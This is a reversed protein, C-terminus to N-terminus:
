EARNTDRLVRMALLALAGVAAVLVAWLVIRRYPPAPALAAPGGLNRPADLTAPRVQNTRESEDLSALLAEVPADATRTRASGYVLTYPASGQAVFVLEHPHWGVKLRPARERKWEGGRTPEVRWYRDSTQAIRAAAGQVVGNSEQLRYFLGSQRPVWAAASARSQITVSAAATADAFELDLYRVPFMARTDYLAAGTQDLSEVTLTRWRIQGERESARPRVRVTTLAVRALEKPWSIRLYKAVEGPAPLEIENQTLTYSDRQLQAVAAAPVITRWHSLDDSSEVSVRTLFTVGPPAQWSLAVRTLPERLTSVDVLHATTSRRAPDNTVELVTGNSDVRVQTRAPRSLQDTMPFSPMTRWEAEPSAPVPAERLTHPVADGSANLVRVDGLDPRTATEYVDDPLLVRFISGGEARIGAGRAFDDLSTQARVVLPLCALVLAAATRTM